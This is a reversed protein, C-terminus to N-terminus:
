RNVEAEARLWDDLEHGNEFGREEYYSYARQRILQETQELSSVNPDGPSSKRSKM